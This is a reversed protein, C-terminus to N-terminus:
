CTSRQLETPTNVHEHSISTVQSFVDSHPAIPDSSEEGGVPKRKTKMRAAAREGDSLNRKPTEFLSKDRETPM